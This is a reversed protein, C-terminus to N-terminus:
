YDNVDDFIERSLFIRPPHLDFLRRHPRPTHINEPIVCYYHFNTLLENTSFVNFSSVGGPNIIM